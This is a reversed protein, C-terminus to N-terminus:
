KQNDKTKSEMERQNYNKLFKQYIIETEDNILSKDLQLPACHDPHYFSIPQLNYKRKYYHFINMYITVDVQNNADIKQTLYNTAKDANEGFIRAVQM